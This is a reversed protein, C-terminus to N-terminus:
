TLNHIEAGAALFETETESGNSFCPVKLVPKWQVVQLACTTWVSGFFNPRDFETHQAPSKKWRFQTFSSVLMSHFNTLTPPEGGCGLDICIYIYIYMNCTYSYTYRSCVRSPLFGAGASLLSPDKFAMRQLGKAVFTAHFDFVNKESPFSKKVLCQETM